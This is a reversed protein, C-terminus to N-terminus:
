CPLWLREDGEGWRPSPQPSPTQATAKSFDCLVIDNAARKELDALIEALTRGGKEKAFRRLEEETCPIEVDRYLSKKDVPTFTGLQCGEEDFLEVPEKVWRLLASTTSDVIIKAM